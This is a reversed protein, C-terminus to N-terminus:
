CCWATSSTNTTGWTTFRTSVDRYAIRIEDLWWLSHVSTCATTTIRGLSFWKSSAWNYNSSETSYYLYGHLSMYQSTENRQSSKNRSCIGAFIGVAYGNQRCVGFVLILHHCSDQHEIITISVIVTTVTIPPYPSSYMFDIRIKICEYDLCCCYCYNNGSYGTCTHYSYCNWVLIHQVHLLLIRQYMSNCIYEM